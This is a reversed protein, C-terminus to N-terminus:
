LAMKRLSGFLVELFIRETIMLPKYGIESLTLALSRYHALIKHDQLSQHQEEILSKSQPDM